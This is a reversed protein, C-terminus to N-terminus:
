GFAPVCETRALIKLNPEVRQFNVVTRGETRLAVDKSTVIGDYMRVFGPQQAARPATAGVRVWSRGWKGPMIFTSNDHVRTWSV